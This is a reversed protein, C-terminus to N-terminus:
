CSENVEVMEELLSGIKYGQSAKLDLPIIMLFVVVQFAVIVTQYKICINNIITKRM